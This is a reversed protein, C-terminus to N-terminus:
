GAAHTIVPFNIKTSPRILYSVSVTPEPWSPQPEHAKNQSDIQNSLSLMLQGSSDNHIAAQRAASAIATTPGSKDVAARHEHHRIPNAQNPM